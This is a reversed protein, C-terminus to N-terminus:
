LIGVLINIALAGMDIVPITITEQLHQVQALPHGVYDLLICDLDHTQISSQLTHSFTDDQQNINATWVATEFGAQRWRSQIPAEQTMTPAILGLRQFGCSQLLNRALTFPKLLPRESQLEAFTGACLLITAAVNQAELEALKQQVLPVLFQEDVTVATGDKMRTILPYAAKTIAPLDTPTLGDLAGMQIIKWGPLMAALPQVLDPRPSQGILLAGVQKTMM